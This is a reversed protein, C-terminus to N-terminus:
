RYEPDVYVSQIWWVHGNRWDSWEFTILLCGAMQNEDQDFMVYYQGLFQNSFLAEIGKSLTDRDLALNESEFAMRIQFDILDPIDEPSAKRFILNM